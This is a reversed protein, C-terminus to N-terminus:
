TWNKRVAEHKRYILVIATVFIVVGLGICTYTLMSPAIKTASADVASVGAVAVGGTRSNRETTTTDDFVQQPPDKTPPSGPLEKLTPSIDDSFILQKVIPDNGRLKEEVDAIGIYGGNWAKRYGKFDGVDAFRNLNKWKPLAACVEPQMDLQSVISPNRLAPLGTQKEVQAYGDHGTWQPGGRGIYNWGDDTGPRNGMRTGYVVNFFMRKDIPDGFRAKVEAATRGARWTRM